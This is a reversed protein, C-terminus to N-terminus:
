VGRHMMIVGVWWLHLVGANMLRTYPFVRHLLDKCVYSLCVNQPVAYISIRIFAPRKTDNANRRM